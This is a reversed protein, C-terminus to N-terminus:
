RTAQVMISDYWNSSHFSPRALAGLAFHGAPTFNILRSHVEPAGADLHTYAEQNMDNKVIIHYNSLQGESSISSLSGVFFELGCDVGMNALFDALKNGERRTHKFSIARHQNEAHM